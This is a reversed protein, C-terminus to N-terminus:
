TLSGGVGSGRDSSSHRPSVASEAAGLMPHRSTTAPTAHESRVARSPQGSAVGFKRQEVSLLEAPEFACLAMHVDYRLRVTMGVAIGRTSGEAFAGARLAFDRGTGGRRLLAAHAV